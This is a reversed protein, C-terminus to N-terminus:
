IWFVQNGVKGTFFDIVLWLGAITFQGGILGLFFPRLQVFLRHGGYRLIFSKLAWAIFISLWINDMLWVPGIPFGIPHFPWWLFHQRAFILGSMVLAGALTFGWGRSRLDAVQDPSEQLKNAVFEFPAKAGGGFFWSNLNIGGHTYSLYLIVWISSVLSLVIALLLAWFLPRKHRGLGDSLKLAHAVSAFVYTRIDATWVWTFGLATLSAPQFASSGATSVVFSSSITSAVGEGVGEVVIRCLGVFILYAMVLFSLATLIGMGSLRLWCALFLFGSLFGFLATRYSLIEDADDVDPDDWVAKRVVNRLHARGVWLGLLVMVILAGMGQHALDASKGVGYIGMNEVSKWGFLTQVGHQVAALRNFFWISFIIDLNILYAFGVVPFSLMFQFPITNQLIQISPWQTPIRPVYPFYKNLGAFSSIVIPIAMGLWFMRGHFFPGLLGGPRPQQVMEQPLRTLPFILREREVWQRRLIVMACVMTLYAAVICPLWYALPLIWERYPIAAGKPVGEYFYKIALPDQPVLNAWVHPHIRNAWDNEPTAYYFVAPPIPLLQETLGMTPIACAVLMMSYIVLLESRNPSLAPVPGPKLGYLLCLGAFVTIFALLSAQHGAAAAPALFPPIWRFLGALLAHVATLLLMALIGAAVRRAKSPIAELWANLITAALSVNLVALVFCGVLVIRPFIESECLLALAPLLAASAAAALTFGMRRRERLTTLLRLFLVGATCLFFQFFVAAATTFDISM